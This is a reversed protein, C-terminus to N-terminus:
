SVWWYPVAGEVFEVDKPSPRKPPEESTVQKRPPNPKPPPNGAFDIVALDLTKKELATLSSLKKRGTRLDELLEVCREDYKEPTKEVDDLLVPLRGKLLQEFLSEREKTVPVVEKEVLEFFSPFQIPQLPKLPEPPSPAKLSSEFVPLASNILKKSYENSM